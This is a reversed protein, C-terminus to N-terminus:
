VVIPRKVAGDADGPTHTQLVRVKSQMWLATVENLRAGASRRAIIGYHLGALGSGSVEAQGEGGTRAAADLGSLPM